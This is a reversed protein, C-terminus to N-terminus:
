DISFSLEGLLLYRAGYDIQAKLSYDGEPLPEKLNLKFKRLTGPLIGIQQINFDLQKIKKGRDNFINVKGEPRILVNGENFISIDIEDPQIFEMDALKAQYIETKRITLALFGGLRFNIGIGKEYYLPQTEFFIIGYYGGQVDSPVSVSIRVKAIEGAAVDLETPQIDIWDACSWQTSGPPVFENSGDPLYIVDQAYVKIHLPTDSKTNNILITKGRRQGPSVSMEIRSPEITFAFAELSLAFLLTLGIIFLLSIKRM